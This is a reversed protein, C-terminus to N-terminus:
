SRKMKTRQFIPLLLAIYGGPALTTQVQLTRARNNKSSYSLILILYSVILILYSYSGILILALLQPPSFNKFPLFDAFSVDATHHNKKLAPSYDLNYIM